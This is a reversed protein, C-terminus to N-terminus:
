HTLIFFYLTDHLKKRIEKMIYVWIREGEQLINLKNSCNSIINQILGMPLKTVTLQLIPMKHQLWLNKHKTYVLFLAYNVTLPQMFGLEM